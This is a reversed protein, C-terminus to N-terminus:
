IPLHFHVAHPAFKGILMFAIGVLGLGAAAYVLAIMGTIVAASALVIGIQLAASSVEYHHYKALFTDRKKEAEQARAMLEISGERTEPESRYRRAIKQWDDLQKSLAAKHADNAIALQDISKEQAATEVLTRRITKAQFFAWLNAAEINSGLAETQASKGFMESFALFLALVSILLAVQKNNLKEGQEGGGHGHKEHELHHEVEHQVAHVGHSMDGEEETPDNAAFSPNLARGGCSAVPSGGANRL